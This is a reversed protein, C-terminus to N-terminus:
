RRLRHLQQGRALADLTAREHERGPALSPMDFVRAVGHLFDALCCARLDRRVVQAAGERGDANGIAADVQVLDFQQRVMHGLAYGRAVVKLRTM